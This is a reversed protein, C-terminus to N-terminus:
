SSTSPTGLIKNNNSLHEKKEHRRRGSPSVYDNDCYKCKFRRIFPKKSIEICTKIQNIKYPIKM